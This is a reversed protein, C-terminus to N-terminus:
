RNQLRQRERFRGWRPDERLDHFPAGALGGSAGTTSSLSGDQAASDLWAFAQDRDGLAAPVFALYYAGVERRRWRSLLSDHISLAEERRGAHALAYGLLAVVHPSGADNRPGLVAIAEDWRGLRAHCEAAITPTRLLPPDLAAISKLRALAEECRDNALLMRALEATASPSLPNLEVAREAEALAEVPRGSELYYQSVKERIWSSKPDLEIARQLHHEVMTRDDVGARMLGLVAHGEALSDDLALGKRVAAEAVAHDGGTRWTLKALGVWAAAYTSDL